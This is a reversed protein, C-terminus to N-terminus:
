LQALRYLFALRVISSFYLQVLVFALASAFVPVLASALVLAM